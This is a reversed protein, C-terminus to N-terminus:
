ARDQPGPSPGLLAGLQGVLVDSVRHVTSLVDAFGAAGGHYPDPVDAGPAEPDLSRFLRVRDPEPPDLALVDRLNAADMALLLDHAFWSPDAPDLHRARHHSPDLGDARLAAAARRDMPGGVHWDGTGCSALAVRDALGAREVADALVVEATPSRCINGLCVLAVAYRGPTRPAPLASM